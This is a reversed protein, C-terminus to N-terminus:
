HSFQTTYKKFTFNFQFNTSLLLACNQLASFHSRTYFFHVDQAPVLRFVLRTTNAYFYTSGYNVDVKNTMAPQIMVATLFRRATPLYGLAHWFFWLVVKGFHMRNSQYWLLRIIISQFWTGLLTGFFWLVVKGFHSLASGRKKHISLNMITYVTTVM